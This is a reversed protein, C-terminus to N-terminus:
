SSQKTRKLDRERLKEQKLYPTGDKDLIVEDLKETAIKYEESEEWAAEYMNLEKNTVRERMEESLSSFYRSSSMTIFALAERALPNAQFLENMQEERKVVEDYEAQLNDLTAFYVDKALGDNIASLDPDIASYGNEKLDNIQQSLEYRSEFVEYLFDTSLSRKYRDFGSVIEDITGEPYSGPNQIEYEKLKQELEDSSYVLQQMKAAHEAGGRRLSYDTSRSMWQEEVGQIYEDSVGNSKLYERVPEFNNEIVATDFLPNLGSQIRENKETNEQIIGELASFEESLDVGTEQIFTEYIQARNEASEEKKVLEQLKQFQEQVSANYDSLLTDAADFDRKYRNIAFTRDLPSM